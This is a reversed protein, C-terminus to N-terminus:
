TLAAVNGRGERKTDLTRKENTDCYRLHPRGSLLYPRNVRREVFSTHSVPRGLANSRFGRGLGELLARKTEM